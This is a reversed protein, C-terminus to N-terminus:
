DRASLSRGTRPDVDGAAVREAYDRESREDLMFMSAWLNDVATTKKIETLVITDGDDDDFTPALIVKNTGLTGSPKLPAAVPVTAPLSPMNMFAQQVSAQVTSQIIQELDGDPARPPEPKPASALIKDVIWPHLKFLLTTDGKSLQSMVMIGDMVTQRFTRKSKLTEIRKLVRKDDARTDNLWFDIRRRM